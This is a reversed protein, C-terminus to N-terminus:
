YYTSKSKKLDFMSYTGKLINICMGSDSKVVISDPVSLKYLKVSDEIFREVSAFILLREERYYHVELSGLNKFLWLIKPNDSDTLACAYSGALRESAEKIAMTTPDEIHGIIDANTYKSPNKHRKAFYNVLSFIAESDVQGIRKIVGASTTKLFSFISDDNSIQGNHVGVITGTRIPHNNDPNTHSGQTQARTHGIVSFPTHEGTFSPMNKRVVEKYNDLQTFADAYVNHKFITIGKEGTFAYGTADKGRVKSAVALNKLIMRLIAPKIKCNEFIAMGYIGCM